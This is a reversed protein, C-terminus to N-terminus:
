FTALGRNANTPIYGMGKMKPAGRKKSSTPAGMKAVTKKTAMPGLGLMEGLQKGAYSGAASGVAAGYPNGASLFGGSVGGAVGGIAGLIDAGLGKGKQGRGTQGIPISVKYNLPDFGAPAYSMGSYTTRKM